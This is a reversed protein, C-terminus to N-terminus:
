LPRQTSWNPTQPPPIVEKKHGAEPNPAYARGFENRKAAVIDWRFESLL